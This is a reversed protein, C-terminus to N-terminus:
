QKRGPIVLISSILPKTTLFGDDGWFQTREPLVDTLDSSSENLVRPYNFLSENTYHVTSYNFTKDFDQDDDEPFLIALFKSQPYIEISKVNNEFYGEEQNYEYSELRAGSQFNNNIAGTGLINSGSPNDETTSAQWGTQPYINVTAKDKETDSLNVRKFATVSSPVFDFSPNSIEYSEPEYYNDKYPNSESGQDKISSPYLVAKGKYDDFQHIIVGHNYSTEISGDSKFERKPVSFVTHENPNMQFSATNINGSTNVLICGNGSDGPNMMVKLDKAAKIRADENSGIYDNLLNGITDLRYSCLYIGPQISSEVEKKDALNPNVLDPNITRLVLFSSLVLVGGILSNRIKKLYDARKQPKSTSTAVMIGNYILSGLILFGLIYFSFRYVYDLYQTLDSSDGPTGEGSPLDPYNLELNRAGLATSPLLFVLLVFVAIFIKKYFNNNKM